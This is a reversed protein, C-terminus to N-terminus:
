GKVFDSKIKEDEEHFANCYATQNPFQVKTTSADIAEIQAQEAVVPDKKAQNIQLIYDANQMQEYPVMGPQFM